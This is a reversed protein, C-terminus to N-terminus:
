SRNQANGHEMMQAVLKKTDASDLKRPDIANSPVQGGAGLLQPAPRRRRLEASRSDYEAYAQEATMNKHLMRMVVEDEPFDGYKKKLGSLEDNLVKDQEAAAQQQVTMNRQAVMIQQMTNLQEQMTKIRPDDSDSEEIEEVIAEAQAPTIGLHKGITEYIERPNNEISAFVRLATDAHDPTVGSKALDGWGRLSEYESVKEKFKPAFESRKDEPVYQVFENWSSDLGEILPMNGPPMDPQGM